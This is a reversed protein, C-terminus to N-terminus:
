SGGALATFVSRAVQQGFESPQLSAGIRVPPASRASVTSLSAPLAGPQATTLRILEARMAREFRAAEARDLGPCDIVLHEVHLSVARPPAASM